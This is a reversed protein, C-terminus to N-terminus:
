VCPILLKSNPGMSKVNLIFWDNEMSSFEVLPEYDQALKTKQNSYALAVMTLIIVEFIHKM